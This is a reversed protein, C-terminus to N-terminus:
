WRGDDGALDLTFLGLVFDLVEGPSWGADLYVGLGLELEVDFAHIQAYRHDRM